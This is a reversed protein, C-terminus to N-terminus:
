GALARAAADAARRESEPLLHGYLDATTTISEHGLRRSVTLLDVGAAILWSAHSHRLDHIRPSSALAATGHKASDRARAVAPQWVQGYHSRNLPGGGRPKGSRLGDLQTTFVRDAPGRGAILPRLADVVQPPLTVTRRSRKSKPSGLRRGTGAAGRKDSQVIRVAPHKADLDLRDVTLGVAEAWRMGTGALTIYLPRWYAPIETLLLAWEAHTLITMESDDGYDREPLRLGRAPNGERWNRGAAAALAASLLGHLNAITKDSVARGRATRAARDLWNLWASCATKDLGAVPLPGLMPDIYTRADRLYDARTRESIGTLEAVHVRIADAVTRGPQTAAAVAAVQDPDAGTAEILRQAAEAQDLGDFTLSTQTGNHRWLVAYGTTGDSRKRPRISAMLPM